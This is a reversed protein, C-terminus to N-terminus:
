AQNTSRRMKKKIFKFFRSSYFVALVSFLGVGSFITGSISKGLAIFCVGALICTMAIIFAFVQGILRENAKKNALSIHATLVESEIKHRHLNENEAMKIIREGAGPVIMEYAKLESSLPLPGSYSATIVKTRSKENNKSIESPKELVLSSEEEPAM